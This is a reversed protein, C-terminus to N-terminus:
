MDERFGARAAVLAVTLVAALAEGVLVGKARLTLYLPTATGVPGAVERRFQALGIRHGVRWALYSGLLGGAALGVATAVGHRRGGLLLALVACLIGAVATVVLFIGDGAIFAKTNPDALNAGGAAVVVKARPALAAWLLGLPGGLVAVAAAVVVGTRVDGRRRGALAPEPETM